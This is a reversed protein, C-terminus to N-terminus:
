KKGTYKMRYARRGPRDCLLLLVYIFNEKLRHYMRIYIVYWMLCRVVYPLPGCLAVSWVNGGSGGKM